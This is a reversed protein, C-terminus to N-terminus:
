NRREYRQNEVIKTGRIFRLVPTFEWGKWRCDRGCIECRKVMNRIIEGPFVCGSVNEEMIKRSIVIEETIIENRLTQGHFAARYRVAGSRGEEVENPRLFSM